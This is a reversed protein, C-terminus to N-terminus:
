SFAVDAHYQSSGADILFGANSIASSHSLGCLYTLPVAVGVDSAFEASLQLNSLAEIVPLVIGSDGLM